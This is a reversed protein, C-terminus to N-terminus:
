KRSRKLPPQALLEPRLAALEDAVLQLRAPTPLKALTARVEDPEPTTPVLQDFVTKALGAPVALKLFLRPTSM